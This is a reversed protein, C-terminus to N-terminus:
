FLETSYLFVEPCDHEQCRCETIMCYLLPMCRITATRMVCIFIRAANGRQCLALVAWIEKYVTCSRFGSAVNVQGHGNMAKFASLTNLDCANSDARNLGALHWGLRQVAAEDIGM